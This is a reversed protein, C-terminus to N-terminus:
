KYGYNVSAARLNKNKFTCLATNDGDFDYSYEIDYDDDDLGDIEVKEVLYTTPKGLMGGYYLHEFGFCGLYRSLAAPLLGNKNVFNSPTLTLVIPADNNSKYEIKVLNGAEYTLDAMATSAEGAFNADHTTKSWQTLYGDYSYAFSYVDKNVTMEAIKGNENLTVVMSMGNSNAINVGKSTYTLTSSYENKEGPVYNGKASTLHTNNYTLAWDYSPLVAGSHVISTVRNSGEAPLDLKIPPEYYAGGDDDSSSCSYLAMSLAVLTYYFKM